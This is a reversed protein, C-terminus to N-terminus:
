LLKENECFMNIMKPVIVSKGLRDYVRKQIEIRLSLYETQNEFWLSYFKLIERSFKEIDFPEIISGQRNDKIIDRPGPINFAVCPLGYSQAWVVALSFSDVRSTFIFLSSDQHLLALESESVFGKYFVNNPYRVTLENIFKIGNGPPGAICFRVGIEKELTVQILRALLDAGKIEVSLAGVFLVRFEKSNFVIEKPDRYVYDPVLDIKGRFRLNELKMKQDNNIVHVNNVFGKFFVILPIRYILWIKKKFTSQASRNSFLFSEPIHMGYIYNIKRIKSFIVLFLGTFLSEDINYITTLRAMERINNLTFLPFIPGLSTPLTRFRIIKALCIQKIDSFSINARSNENSTFIVVDIKRRILENSLEIAGREGGGFSTISSGTFIGVTCAKYSM